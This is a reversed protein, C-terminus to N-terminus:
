PHLPSQYGARRCHQLVKGGGLIANRLLARYGGSVVARSTQTKSISNMKQANRSRICLAAMENCIDSKSELLFMVWSSNKEEINKEPPRTKTHQRTAPRWARSRSLGAVMTFDVVSPPMKFACTSAPVCTCPRRAMAMALPIGASLNVQVGTFPPRVTALRSKCRANVKQVRGRQTKARSGRRAEVRRLLRVGVFVGRSILVVNDLLKCHGSGIGFAGQAIKRLRIQLLVDLGIAAVGRNGRNKRCPEAIVALMHPLEHGVAADM